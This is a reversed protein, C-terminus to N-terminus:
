IEDTLLSMRSAIEHDFLKEIGIKMTFIKKEPLFFSRQSSPLECNVKIRM